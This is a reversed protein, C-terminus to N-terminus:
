SQASIIAKLKKKLEPLDERVVDWVIEFNVTDYAHIIRNRMGIIKR